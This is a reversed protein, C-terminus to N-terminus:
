ETSTGEVQIGPEEEDLISAAETDFQGHVIGGSKVELIFKTLGGFGGGGNGGDKTPHVQKSTTQSTPRGIEHIGLHSHTTTKPGLGDKKSGFTSKNQDKGVGVRQSTGNNDHHEKREKDLGGFTGTVTNDGVHIRGVSSGNRTDNTRTTVRTGDTETHSETLQTVLSGEIDHAKSNQSRRDETDEDVDLTVRTQQPALVFHDALFSTSGMIAFGM